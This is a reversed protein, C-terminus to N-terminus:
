FMLSEGNHIQLALYCYLSDTINGLLLTMSSARAQCLQELSGVVSDWLVPASTKARLSGGQLAALGSLARSHERWLCGLRGLSRQSGSQTGLSRRTWIGHSMDEEKGRSM